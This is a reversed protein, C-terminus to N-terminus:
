LSELFPVIREIHRTYTRSSAIFARASQAKQYKEEDSLAMIESLTRTLREPEEPAFYLHDEYERGLGNLRSTLVPTGSIMYEIVKSPFTVKMELQQTRRINMLLGSSRQLSRAEENTVRGRFQIRADKQAMQAVYGSLEGDGCVVFTAEPDELACFAELMERLCNYEELAGTFLIQKWRHEQMPKCADELEEETVGGDMVVCPVDPAFTQAAFANLAILGDFQPLAKSYMAEERKRLWRKFRGYSDPLDFPIDALVCVLRCGTKKRIKMLPAAFIWFANFCIITDANQERCEFLMRRYVSLAQTFQKLIFVNAFPVRHTTLGDGLPIDGEPVWVCRTKPFAAIPYVTVARLDAYASKLAKLLGNQMRNGSVHMGPHEDEAPVQYGLFCLKKM